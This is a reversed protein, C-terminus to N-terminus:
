ASFHFARGRLHTRRFAPERLRGRRAGARVIALYAFAPPAFAASTVLFLLLVAFMAFTKAVIIAYGAGWRVVLTRKGTAGDAAADPIEVSIMMAFMACMGPLTALTRARRHRARVGCLGALPVLLAVVAVTDLEGLGRALLRVPPASYCWALGGIAVGILALAVNGAVLAHVIGFAGVTACALAAVLAVRRPFENAALVGSGGSWMTRTTLADRRKISTTTRSTCWSIFRRSSCSAGCIRQSTSRTISSARSRRVSHSRRSDASCFRCDRSGCSRTCVRARDIRPSFSATCRRGITSITSRSASARDRPRRDRTRRATGGRTRAPHEDRVNKRQTSRDRAPTLNEAHGRVYEEATLYDPTEAEIAHASRWPTWAIADTVLEDFGGAGHRYGDMLRGIGHMRHKLWLRPLHAIGLPGTTSTSIAPVLPSTDGDDELLMHHMADWDDLQNLQIAGDFAGDRLGFRESWETRRPEPMKEAVTYANFAAVTAPALDRANARIWGECAQYDPAERAIHAEFANKDIGFADMLAADTGRNGRVYGDPLADVAHARMKLWFRPLHVIGLPGAKSGSILPILEM